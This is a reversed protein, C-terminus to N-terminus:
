LFSKLSRSPKPTPFFFRFFVTTLWMELLAEQYLQSSVFVEMITHVLELSYMYKYMWTCVYVYWIYICMYISQLVWVLVCFPNQVYISTSISFILFSVLIIFFVTAHLDAAKTKLHILCLVISCLSLSEILKFLHSIWSLDWWVQRLESVQM